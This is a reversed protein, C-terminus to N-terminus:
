DASISERSARQWGVAIVSANSSVFAAQRDV